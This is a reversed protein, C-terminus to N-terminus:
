SFNNRKNIVKSNIVKSKHREEKIKTLEDFLSKEKSELTKLTETRTIMSQLTKNKSTTDFDISLQRKKSSIVDKTLAQKGLKKFHKIMSIETKKISLDTSEKYKKISYYVNKKLMLNESTNQRSKSLSLRSETMKDQMLNKMERNRCRQDLKQNELKDRQKKILEEYDNKYRLYLKSKDQIHQNKIVFKRNRDIENLLFNISKTKRSCSAELNAKM